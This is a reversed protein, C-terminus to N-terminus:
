GRSPREFIARHEKAISIMSAVIPSTAFEGAKFRMVGALESYDYEAFVDLNRHFSVVRSRGSSDTGEVRGRAVEGTPNLQTRYRSFARRIPDMVQAAVTGDKFVYSRRNREAFNDLGVLFPEDITVTVLDVQFEKIHHMSAVWQDFSGSRSLYSCELKKRSSYEKKIEAIQSSRGRGFTRLDAIANACLVERLASLRVTCVRFFTSISCSHHYYLYLGFRTKKNLVFFNFEALSKGEEVERVDFVIENASLQDDTNTIMLQHRQSKITLVLGVLYDEQDAVFFRRQPTLGEVLKGSEGVLWNYYQAQTVCDPTRWEFGYVRADM